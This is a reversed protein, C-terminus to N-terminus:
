AEQSSIIANMLKEESIPKMIFADAGLALIEKIRLDNSSIAIIPVNTLPPNKHYHKLFEAGDMIPMEVDLLILQIDLNKQCLDLASNGDVAELVEIQYLEKTLLSILLRRNIYDDDAILIKFIM